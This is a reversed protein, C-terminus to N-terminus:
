SQNMIQAAERLIFLFMKLLCFQHHQEQAGEGVMHGLVWPSQQPDSACYAQGQPPRSAEPLDWAVPWPLIYLLYNPQSLM